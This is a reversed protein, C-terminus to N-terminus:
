RLMRQLGSITEVLPNQNALAVTDFTVMESVRLGGHRMVVRFGRADVLIDTPYDAKAAARVADKMRQLLTM